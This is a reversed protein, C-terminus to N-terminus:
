IYLTYMIDKLEKWSLFPFFLIFYILSIIQKSKKDYSLSNLDNKNFRM